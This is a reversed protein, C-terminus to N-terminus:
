TGVYAFWNDHDCFSSRGIYLPSTILGFRFLVQNRQDINNQKNPKKKAKDNREIKM